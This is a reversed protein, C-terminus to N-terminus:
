PIEVDGIYWPCSLQAMARLTSSALKHSIYRGTQRNQSFAPLIRPEATDAPVM